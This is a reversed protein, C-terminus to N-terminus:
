FPGADLVMNFLSPLRCSDQYSVGVSSIDIQNCSQDVPDTFHKKTYQYPYRSSRIHFIKWPGNSTSSKRWSVFIDQIYWWGTKDICRQSNTGSFPPTYGHLCCQWCNTPVLIHDKDHNTILISPVSACKWLEDSTVLVGPLDKYRKISWDFGAWKHLDMLFHINVDTIHAM